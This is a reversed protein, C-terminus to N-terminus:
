LMVEGERLTEDEFSSKFPCREGPLYTKLNEKWDYESM